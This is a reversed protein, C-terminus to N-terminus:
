HVGRTQARIRYMEVGRFHDYLEVVLLLKDCALRQRAGLVTNSITDRLSRSTLQPHQVICFVYM